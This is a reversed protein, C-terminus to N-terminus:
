KETRRRLAAAIAVLGHSDPAVSSPEQPLTQPHSDQPLVFELKALTRPLIAIFLSILLLAAFVILIGTVAIAWGDYAAINQLGIPNEGIM